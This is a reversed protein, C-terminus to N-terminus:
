KLPTVKIWFFQQRNAGQQFSAARMNSDVNNFLVM